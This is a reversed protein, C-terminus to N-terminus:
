VTELLLNQTQRTQWEVVSANHLLHKPVGEAFSFYYPFYVTSNIVANSRIVPISGTNGAQFAPTNVQWVVDANAHKNCM